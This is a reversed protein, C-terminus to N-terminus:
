GPPDEVPTLLVRSRDRRRPNAPDAPRAEPEPLREVRFRRGVPFRDEDRLPPLPRAPDRRYLGDADAKLAGVFLIERWKRAPLTFGGDPGAPVTDEFPRSDPM